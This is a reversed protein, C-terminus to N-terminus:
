EWGAPLLAPPPRLAGVTTAVPEATLGMEGTVIGQM